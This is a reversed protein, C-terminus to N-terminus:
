EFIRPSKEKIKKKPFVVDGGLEQVDVIYIVSNKAVSTGSIGGFTAITLPGTRGLGVGEADFAITDYHSLDEVATKLGDETNVLVYNSNNSQAMVKQQSM